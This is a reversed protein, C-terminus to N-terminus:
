SSRRASRSAEPKHNDRLASHPVDHTGDPLRDAWVVVSMGNASSANASHYTWSPTTTNVQFEPGLSLALRAELDQLGPRYRRTRGPRHGTGKVADSRFIRRIADRM